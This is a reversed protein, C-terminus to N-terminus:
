SQPKYLKFDLRDLVNTTKVIRVKSHILGACDNETEKIYIVLCHLRDSM